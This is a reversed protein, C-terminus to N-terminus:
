PNLNSNAVHKWRKRNVIRSIQDQGVGFLRALDSQSISGSYMQRISSVQSETLKSLGHRSGRNDPIAGRRKADRDHSNDAESGLFLHNPNCCPPNDCKHLVCCSQDETPHELFYAVRHAPYSQKGVQFYGYKCRAVGGGTWIWCEDINTKKVKAAFNKKQRETLSLITRRPNAM